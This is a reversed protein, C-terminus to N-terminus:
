KAGAVVPLQGPTWGRSRVRPSPRSVQVGRTMEQHQRRAVRTLKRTAVSRPPMNRPQAGGGDATSSHISPRPWGAYTQCLLPGSGSALSPAGTM